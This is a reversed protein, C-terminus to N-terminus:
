HHASGAMMNNEATIMSWQPEIAPQYEIKKIADVIRRSQGAPVYNRVHLEAQMDSDPNTEAKPRHQDEADSTGYSKRMFEYSLVQVRYADAGVRKARLYDDLKAFHIIPVHGTALVLRVFNSMKFDSTGNLFTSVAAKSVGRRDALDKRSVDKLSNVLSVLVLRITELWYTTGSLIEREDFLANQKRARNGVAM